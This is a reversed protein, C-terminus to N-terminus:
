QAPTTSTAQVVAYRRAANIAGNLFGAFLAVALVKPDAADLNTAALVGCATGIGGTVLDLAFKLLATKLAPNM